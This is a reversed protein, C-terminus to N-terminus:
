VSEIEVFVNIRFLFCFFFCQSFFLFAHLFTSFFCLFCISFSVSSGFSVLHFSQSQQGLSGLSSNLANTSKGKVRYLSWRNPEGMLASSSSTISRSLFGTKLLASASNKKAYRSPFITPRMAAIILQISTFSSLFFLTRKPQNSVMSSKASVSANNFATRAYPFFFDISNISFARNTKRIKIFSSHQNFSNLLHIGHYRM